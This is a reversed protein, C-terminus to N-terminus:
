GISATFSGVAFSASTNYTYAGGGGGCGGRSQETGSGGGGGGVVLVTFALGSKTVSLVQANSLTHVKWTQGTGNYNAVTTVTGGTAINWPSRGKGGSPGFLGAANGLRPM